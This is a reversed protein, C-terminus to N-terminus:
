RFKAVSAKSIEMKNKLLTCTVHGWMETNKSLIGGCKKPASSVMRGETGSISNKSM